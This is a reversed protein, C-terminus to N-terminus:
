NVKFHSLNENVATISDQNEIADVKTSEITTEFNNIVSISESMASQVNSSLDVVDEISSQIEASYDLNNRMLTNIETIQDSIENTARLTENAGISQEKTAEDITEILQWQEKISERIQKFANSTSDIKETSKSIANSLDEIMGKINTVSKSTSEALSRIEGAVVSFGTGANGAHAAEIAANMALLNTQSSVKQIVKTVEIMQSSKESIEKIINLTGTVETNGSDSLRTLEQSLNKSKNIMDGISNINAVMETIASANKETSSTQYIILDSIRKSDENLKRLNDQTSTLLQDREDSMTNIDNFKSVIQNIGVANQESTELLNKANDAIAGTQNKIDIIIKILYDILLNIESNTLGFDYLAAIPLRDTLNGDKRINQITNTTRTFRTRINKVIFMMYIMPYIFSFLAVFMGEEFFQAIGGAYGYRAGKYGVCLLNAFIFLALAVLSYTIPTTFSELKEKSIDQINLKVIHKQVKAKFFYLSYGIGVLFYSICLYLIINVTVVKDMTTNGLSTIGQKLKVIMILINAVLYALFLISVSIIKVKNFIAPFMMKEEMSLEETKAKKAIKIIPIMTFYVIVAVLCMLFLVIGMTTPLGSLWTKFSLNYMFTYQVYSLVPVSILSSAFFITFYLIFFEM